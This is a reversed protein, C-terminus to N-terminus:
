VFLLSPGLIHPDQHCHVPTWRLLDVPDEGWPHLGCVSKETLSMSVSTIEDLFPASFLTLLDM